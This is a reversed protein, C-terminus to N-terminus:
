VFSKGMSRSRFAKAERKMDNLGALEDILTDIMKQTMQENGSLQGM